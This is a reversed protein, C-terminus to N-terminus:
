PHESTQSIPKSALIRVRNLGFSQVTVSEYLNYMRNQFREAQKLGQLTSTDFVRSEHQRAHENTQRQNDIAFALQDASFKM